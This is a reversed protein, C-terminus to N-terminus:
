TFIEGLLDPGYVLTDGDGIIFAGGHIWFMVPLNGNLNPTYVNLFLCDEHGGAGIGSIGDNPCHNGHSSADRIGSWSKPPAPNRFRLDGVPAAAYPIGKFSYYTHFLGSIERVGSVQGSATTVM